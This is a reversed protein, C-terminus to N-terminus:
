GSKESRWKIRISPLPRPLPPMPIQPTLLDFAKKGRLRGIMGLRGKGGVPSDGWGTRRGLFCDLFIEMFSSVYLCQM